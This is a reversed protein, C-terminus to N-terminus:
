YADINNGRKQVRPTWALYLGGHYDASLVGDRPSLNEFVRLIDDIEDKDVKKSQALVFQLFQLATVTEGGQTIEKRAAKPLWFLVRLLLMYFPALAM